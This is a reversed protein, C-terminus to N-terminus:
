QSRRPPLGDSVAEWLLQAYEGLFHRQCEQGRAQGITLGLMTVGMVSADVAVLALSVERYAIPDIHEAARRLNSQALESRSELQDITLQM